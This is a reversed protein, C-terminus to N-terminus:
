GWSDSIEPDVVFPVEPLIDNFAKALCNKVTAVVSDAIDTRVEVIVEDHLIHVIRADQGGIRGDLKILAIKFGDAATGQLM